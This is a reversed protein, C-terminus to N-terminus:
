AHFYRKMNYFQGQEQKLLHCFNCCDRRNLEKFSSITTSFIPFQFFAYQVGFFDYYASRFFALICNVESIPPYLLAFRGKVLSLTTTSIETSLNCQACYLQNCFNPQLFILNIGLNESLIMNFSVSFLNLLIHHAMSSSFRVILSKLNLTFKCEKM